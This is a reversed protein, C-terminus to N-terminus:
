GKRGVLTAIAWVALSLLALPAIVGVLQGLAMAFGESWDLNAATLAVIGTAAVGCALATRSRWSHDAEATKAVAVSRKQSVHMM